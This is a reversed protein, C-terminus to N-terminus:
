PDSACRQLAARLRNWEAEITPLGFRLSPPATFLRTLIGEAALRAHITAARPTCSWQFLACGGLPPLGHEHLLVALRAGAAQLRERQRVQWDSDRLALAAIHRSSGAIPWPGLRDALASRTSSDTFVCGVRLGALGFFKGLSRLVILGRAASEVVSLDPTADIFAEDVILWGDREALNAHWRLLESRQFVGGSPNNPNILVLVDLAAIVRECDEGSIDVVDHGANRWAHAHENYGPTLIGVRCRSRMRPLHSIAAQSGAVLLAERGYYHAAAQALEDDDEPLRTWAQRPLAASHEDIWSFPSIGTSLDLWESPPIGYQTAARRIRGGHDLM